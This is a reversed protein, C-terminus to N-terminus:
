GWMMASRSATMAAITAADQPAIRMAVGTKTRLFYELNGTTTWFATLEVGGHLLVRALEIHQEPM